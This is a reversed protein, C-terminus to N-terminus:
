SISAIVIHRCHRISFNESCENNRWFYLRRPYVQHERKYDGLKKYLRYFDGRSPLLPFSSVFLGYCSCPFSLDLARFFPSFQRSLSLSVSLSHALSSVLTSYNLITLADELSISRLSQIESPEGIRDERRWGAGPWPM